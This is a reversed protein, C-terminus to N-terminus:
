IIGSEKTNTFGSFLKGEGKSYFFRSVFELRIVLERMWGITFVPLVGFDRAPAHFIINVSVCYVYLGAGFEESRGDM